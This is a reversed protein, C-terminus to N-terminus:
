FLRENLKEKLIKSVVNASLNFDITLKRVSLEIGKNKEIYNSIATTSYTDPKPVHFRTGGLLKMIQKAVEFGLENCIIQMDTSLDEIELNDLILDEFDRSLM